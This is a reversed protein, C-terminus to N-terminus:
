AHSKFDIALVTIDDQQGEGRPHKSWRSLDDLLADIFQNAGVAYSNEM